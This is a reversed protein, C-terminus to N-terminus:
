FAKVWKDKWGDPKSNVIENMRSKSMNFIRAIQARNYGQNDLSFIIENRKEQLYPELEKPKM